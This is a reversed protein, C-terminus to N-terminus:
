EATFYKDTVKKIVERYLDPRVSRHLDIIKQSLALSPMQNKGLVVDCVVDEPIQTHHAIGELSYEETSLIDNIVFCLFKAELMDDEKKTTSKLLSFYDKNKTKYIEKLEEYIRTLLEVELIFKELSTLNRPNIGVLYSLLETAAM